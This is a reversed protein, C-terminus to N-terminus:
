PRLGAGPAGAGAEGTEKGDERQQQAAQMQQSSRGGGLGLGDDPLGRQRHIRISKAGIVTAVVITGNKSM